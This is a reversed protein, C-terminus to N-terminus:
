EDPTGLAAALIKEQSWAGREFSATLRGRAIVIMRDCVALLEEM